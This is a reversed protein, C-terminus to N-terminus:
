APTLRVPHLGFRQVIAQLNIESDPDLTLRETLHAAGKNIDDRETQTLFMKVSGGLVVSADIGLESAILDDPKTKETRFFEDLKRLALFSHLPTADSVLDLATDMGMVRDDPDVHKAFDSCWMEFSFCHDICQTVTLIQAAKKSLKGNSSRVEGLHHRIGKETCEQSCYYHGDSGRTCEPWFAKNCTPLFCSNPSGAEVYKSRKESM